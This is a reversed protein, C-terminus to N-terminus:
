FKRSCHPCTQFKKITFMLSFIIIVFFVCFIVPYIHINDSKSKNISQTLFYFSMFLPLCKIIDQIYIM